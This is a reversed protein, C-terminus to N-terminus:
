MMLGNAIILRDNKQVIKVRRIDAASKLLRKEAAEVRRTIKKM